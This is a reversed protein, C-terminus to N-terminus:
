RRICLGPPLQACVAQVLQEVPAPQCVDPRQACFAQAIEEPSPSPGVPGVPGIKGPLGTPGRLGRQGGRGRPGRDGAQGVAGREGDRGARGPRGRPGPIAEQRVVERVQRRVETPETRREIRNITGRQEVAVVLAVILAVFVFTDWWNISHIREQINM